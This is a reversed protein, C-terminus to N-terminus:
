PQVQQAAIYAAPDHLTAATRALAETLPGAFVTMALLAALLLVPAAFTLPHTGSAAEGQPKWFLLSGARALGIVAILSTILIVPWVVAAQDWRAQLILLKGLFGSLPPMGAVAIATAFFLCALLGSQPPSAQPPGSQPLATGGHLADGGRAAILDAILFLAAIALTSHILYYLGATTAQPTFGSLGILLTGMSAIAAFAALHGFRQSGLMGLSGVILTLLAAPLLIDPWLSQTAATGPPFILTGFRLLAYAGVKTMVAFLAAVAPPANAYTGPLWFHLPVLAAKLAFVVLLMVAAVRILAHDSPPLAAVKGALDAMNLTGTVAYIVGLGILFLTSGVLNTAVYRVGARLRGAGGGHVALGYSAILLVEFFVFLTFADGTLFAGNLGMLQFQFLPHFSAGQRDLGTAVVHLVVVAALGAVVLLMLASLRDAILVIGFPAPWNGLHYAVPEALGSLHVALAVLGVTGALSMGRQVALNRRAVLLMLAALLAPLLIPAVVAHTM